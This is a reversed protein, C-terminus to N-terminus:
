RGGRDDDHLNGGSTGRYVDIARDMIWDIESDLAVAAAAGGVPLSPPIAGEFLRPEVPDDIRVQLWGVPHKAADLVDARYTGRVDLNTRATRSLESLGSDAGVRRFTTTSFPAGTTPRLTLRLADNEWRPEVTQLLASHDSATARAVVAAPSEVGLAGVLTGDVRVVFSPDSGWRVLEPELLGVGGAPYRDIAFGGNIRHAAFNAGPDLAAPPPTPTMCGAVALALVLVSLRVGRM